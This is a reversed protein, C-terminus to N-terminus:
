PGEGTLPRMSARRRKSPGEMLGAIPAGGFSVRTSLSDYPTPEVASPTLPMPRDLPRSVKKMFWTIPM